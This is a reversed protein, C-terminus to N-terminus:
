ARIAWNAINQAVNQEAGKFGHDVGRVVASTLGGKPPHAQFWAEIKKAPRDGYEDKGAFLALVPATVSTFIKAHRLENFYPFISQEVSEPTYLSLFRQATIPHHWVGDPLFGHPKGAKMLARAKQTADKLLPREEKMANASAWDSLPALLVMGHIGKSRRKYAWYVSKQCGTSHGVLVIERAGHSQACRVAGDIDDVCDTFIEAGGGAMLTKKGKTIRSVVDHGRNSFALVAADKVLREIIGHRSWMSSSLGHIWVYVRRADKPGFWLGNLLVKKPTEFTLAHCPIM